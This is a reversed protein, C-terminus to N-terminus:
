PSEALFRGHWSHYWVAGTSANVSLMGSPQDATGVDITYYGPFSTSDLTKRGSLNENLWSQAIADARAPSIAGRKRSPSSYAGFGRMMGPGYGRTSGGASMMGYRTNWMMNPGPEPMLWQDRPGSLLEFAGRGSPDTVAVYDNRTFAMVNVVKFGDFGRERLWANVRERVAKLDAASASQVPSTEPLGFGGGMMGPGYAGRNGNMMGPGYYGRYDNMMVPWYGRRGNMMGRRHFAGDHALVVIAFLLALLSAVVAVGTWIEKRTSSM